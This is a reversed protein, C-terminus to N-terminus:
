SLHAIRSNIKDRLGAPLKFKSCPFGYDVALVDDPRAPPRSREFFDLLSRTHVLTSELVCNHQWDPLKRMSKDKWDKSEHRWYQTFARFLMQAEYYIDGTAQRLETPVLSHSQSAKGTDIAALHKTHRLINTLAPVEIGDAHLFTGDSQILVIKRSSKARLWTVLVTAVAMPDTQEAMEVLEAVNPFAGNAQRVSAASIGATRLNSALTKANRGLLALRM